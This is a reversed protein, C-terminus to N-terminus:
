NETKPTKDQFEDCSQAIMSQHFHSLKPHLCHVHNRCIAVNTWGPMSLFQFFPLADSSNQLFFTDCTPSKIAQLEPADTSNHAFINSAPLPSLKDERRPAPLSHSYKHFHQGRKEVLMYLAGTRWFVFSALREGPRCAAPWCSTSQDATTPRSSMLSRRLIRAMARAQSLSSAYARQAAVALLAAWRSAWASQAAPRLRAPMAVRCSAVGDLPVEICVCQSSPASLTQHRTHMPIKAYREQRHGPKVWSQEHRPRRHDGYGKGFKSELHAYMRNSFFTTFSAAFASLGWRARLNWIYPADCLEVFCVTSFVLYHEPDRCQRAPQGGHDEM